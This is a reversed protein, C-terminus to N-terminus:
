VAVAAAGAEAARLARRARHARTKVTSVETGLARAIEADGLGEGYRLWFVERYKAGLAGLVAEVAALRRRADCREDPGAAPDPREPARGVREPEREADPAERRIRRRRSRLHMLASTVAIRYLWTSHRADGRFRDRHRHAALLAEQTVDEAADRDKVYRMAIAFVYRREREGLAPSVDPCPRRMPEPM